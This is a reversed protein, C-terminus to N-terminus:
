YIEQIVPAFELRSILSARRPLFSIWDIQYVKFKAQNQKKVKIGRPMYRVRHMPKPEKSALVTKGGNEFRLM